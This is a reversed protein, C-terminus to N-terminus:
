QRGKKMHRDTRIDTRDTLNRFTPQQFRPAMLDTNVPFHTWCFRRAVHCSQLVSCTAPLTCLRSRPCDWSWGRRGWRGAPHALTWSRRWLLSRQRCVTHTNFWQDLTHTSYSFLFQKMSRSLSLGLQLLHSETENIWLNHTINFTFILTM